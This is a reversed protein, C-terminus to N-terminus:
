LSLHKAKYYLQPTETRSKHNDLLWKELEEMEKMSMPLGNYFKQLKIYIPDKRMREVEGPNEFVGEDNVNSKYRGIILKDLYQFEAFAVPDVIFPSGNLEFASERLSQNERWRKSAHMLMRPQKLIACYVVQADDKLEKSAFEFAFGTSEVAVLVVKKNNRWKYELRRLMEGNESVIKLAEEESNVVISALKKGRM